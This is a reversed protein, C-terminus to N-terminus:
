QSPLRSKSIQLVCVECYEWLFFGGSKATEAEGTELGELSNLFMLINEMILERKSGRCNHGCAKGNKLDIKSYISLNFGTKVTFVLKRPLLLLM